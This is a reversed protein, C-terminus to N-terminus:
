ELITTPRDGAGSRGTLYPPDGADVCARFNAATVSVSAATFASLMPHCSPDFFTDNSKM